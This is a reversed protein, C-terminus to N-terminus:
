VLKKRKWSLFALGILLLYVIASSIVTISQSLRIVPPEFRFEIDHSGAPISMGRLIYNVKVYPAPKGDIYANWGHDYFVESFVAFQDSNSNSKYKVIDNLNELWQITASSDYVPAKGANSRYREQIIATEKLSASDLAKMEEDANKVFRVERVFWSPGFAEPNQRPVPQGTSPDQQIFYRTNLMNFVQMNGKALQHTIIDQYLGLKAPSYGGISNHFYSARSSEFPNANESQDFVRFPLQTDKKIALDAATPQFAAEFEDKEVFNRYNLYRGAIGLLDISSAILLGILLVQQKIKGTKYFYFLGAAVLIFIVSRLLDAGFLSQRDARLSNVMTQAFGEAQQQVDPTVQKAGGLMSSTLQQKLSADREGSYDAMFYFAALLLIVAGATMLTMRFKKKKIEDTDKDELFQQIGLAALLPFTLQPIILAMSPARFKNYLPLFDFLFYNLSSFNKGWSLFIGTITAALIWWKHWSKVYFLGLIFLFCIVAGFYVPGSTGPQPGWYAPLQKVFSNAQDEQMGTKEMLTGATKTNDGFESKLENNVMTATSGGYARPVLFTASEGIGYSWGFAYDKDLGGKTKNTSDTAVTLESKGGRMTEKAYDKLPYWSIAYTALGLIGALLAVGYGTFASKLDSEKISKVLYAISILIMVIATYYVVQIHQTSTQLGFFLALLTGGLLYRRQFVLLLSGIVAPAYGIAIMQTNHGVAIIIPDFTSYAYALAAMIGALPNVRLVMALFYFTVCALFFFSMPEPLALTILSQIYITELPAGNSTFTYAPMGSFMSNSWLPFHGHQEKFEFSQQAMGKWGQIDHQEVVKGQLAPQCYIVSVVLFILIAIIHPTATKLWTSKM